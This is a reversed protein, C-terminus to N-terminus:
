TEGSAARIVQSLYDDGEEGFIATVKGRQDTIVTLPLRASPNKVGLKAAEAGWEDLILTFDEPIGITQKWPEVTEADEGFNVLVVSIGAKALREQSHVLVKIGKVCPKCWTAFVVVAVGKTKPPLKAYMRHSVWPQTAGLPYGVLRPLDQGVKATGAQNRLETKVKGVVIKGSSKSDIPPNPKAWVFAPVVLSFVISLVQRNM